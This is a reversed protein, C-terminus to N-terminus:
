HDKNLLFGYGVMVNQFSFKAEYTDNEFRFYHGLDSEFKIDIYSREGIIAYAALRFRVGFPNDSVVDYDTVKFSNVADDFGKNDYLTFYLSPGFTVWFNDSSRVGFHLPIEARVYSQVNQRTDTTDLGTNNYNYIIRNVRIQGSVYSLDVEPVFLWSNGLHVVYQMGASGSFGNQAPLIQANSSSDTPSVAYVKPMIIWSTGIGAKLFLENKEINYRREQGFSLTITMAAIIILLLRKM